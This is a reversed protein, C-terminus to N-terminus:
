RIPKLLRGTQESERNAEIWIFISRLAAEIRRREDLSKGLDFITKKVAEPTLTRVDFDQLTKVWMIIESLSVPKQMSVKFIREAFLACDRKMSFPLNPASRCIIEYKRLLNAETLPVHKGRRLIPHSLTLRLQADSSQGSRANEIGANSTIVIHIPLGSASVIKENVESITVAFEDLVELLLSEFSEGSPVKDLENVLLITDPNPDELALAIKGRIMMRRDYYIKTVDEPIEGTLKTIREVEYDQLRINWHYLAAEKSIRPYCDLRYLPVKKWLALKLAFSTKGCGPPGELILPGPRTRWWSLAALLLEEDPYYDVSEFGTRWADIDAQRWDSM